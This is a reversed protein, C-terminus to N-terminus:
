KINVIHCECKAKYRDGDPYVRVFYGMGEGSLYDLTSAVVHPYDIANGTGWFIPLGKAITKIKSEANKWNM